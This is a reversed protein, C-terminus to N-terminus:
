LGFGPASKTSPQEGEISAKLAGQLQTAWAEVNKDIEAKSAVDRTFDLWVGSNPVYAGVILPKNPAPTRSEDYDTVWFEVGNVVKIAAWMGGGTSQIEFGDKEWATGGGEEQREEAKASPRNFTKMYDALLEEAAEELHVGQIGKARRYLRADNGLFIVALGVGEKTEPDACPVYLGMQVEGDAHEFRCGAMNLNSLVKQTKSPDTLITDAPPKLQDLIEELWKPAPNSSPSM